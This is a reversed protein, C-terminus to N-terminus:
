RKIYPTVLLFLGCAVVVGAYAKKKIGKESFFAHGFVVSWMLAMSRKLSIVVSVPAFGYAFSEIASGFGSARLPHLTRRRAARHPPM